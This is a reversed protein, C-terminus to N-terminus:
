IWLGHVSNSYCQCIRIKQIRSDCEECLLYRDVSEERIYGVYICVCVCVCVRSVNM